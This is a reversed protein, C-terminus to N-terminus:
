PEGPGPAALGRVEGGEDARELGVLHVGVALIGNDTESDVQDEIPHGVWPADTGVALNAQVM